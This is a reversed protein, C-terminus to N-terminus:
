ERRRDGAAEEDGSDPASQRGRRRGGLLEGLTNSFSRARGRFGKSTKAGDGLEEESAASSAPEEQTRAQALPPGLLGREEDDLEDQSVFLSARLSPRSRRTHVKRVLPSGQPDMHKLLHDAVVASVTSGLPSPSIFQNQFHHSHPRSSSSISHRPTV